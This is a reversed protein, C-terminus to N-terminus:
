EAARQSYPRGAQASTSAQSPGLLQRITAVRLAVPTAVIVAVVNADICKAIASAKEGDSLESCAHIVDIAEKPGPASMEAFSGRSPLSRDAASWTM